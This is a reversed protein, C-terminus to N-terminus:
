NYIIVFLSSTQFELHLWSQRSGAGNAAWQEATNGSAFASRVLEGGGGPGDRPAAATVSSIVEDGRILELLFSQEGM